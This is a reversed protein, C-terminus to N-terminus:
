YITQREYVYYRVVYIGELGAPPQYAELHTSSRGAALMVNTYIKKEIIKGETSAIELAVDVNKETGLNLVAVPISDKPGYVIDVNGSGALVDQFVMQHAYYVLKAQGYYDVLPKQYTASNAGGRLCCWSFGDYDLYRSKRITEYAEFAQWAQSTKWESFELKRGISGEDYRWEYSQLQYTPKGKHIEWNPQGATEDHEFNFYARYPSEIFSQIYSTSDMYAPLNKEEVNPWQRLASWENGYGLIYDMNGRCILPATWIPDCTDVPNGQYDFMGDDYHPNLRRSDASPSILRSQDLPFITDYIRRYMKMSSSWNKWSPHNSPQWIIISCHNRVQKICTALAELDLNTPATLRLWPSTQWVLMIGLQDAIECIRPDNIGGIKEDHVSMRLGNGNMKRVMLMEEIYYQVPPCKENTAITEMPPRAGFLLPARLLEPKGNIRFVGGEQSVTRIGTTVVFEDCKIGDHNYLEVVLKYLNPENCSWLRPSSVEIIGETSEVANPYTFTNWEGIGCVKGEEPYWPFLKAKVHFLTAKSSSLGKQAKVRVQIKQIASYTHVSDTWTFVDEIYVSPLLDLHMRAAFWGTYVDTHSHTMKNEAKIQDANVRIAYLNDGEGLYSTVDIKHMNEDKILEALKGNIYLEGGPTISEIYFEAYPPM